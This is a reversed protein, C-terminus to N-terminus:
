KKKAFGLTVTVEGSEPHPFKVNKFADEICKHTEYDLGVLYDELMAKIQGSSDIILRVRLVGDPLDPTNAICAAVAANKARLPKTVKDPSLRGNVVVAMRSAHANPDHATSAYVAAAAADDVRWQCLHDLSGDDRLALGETSARHVLADCPDVPDAPPDVTAVSATPAASASPPPATSTASASARATPAVTAPTAPTAADDRPGGCGFAVFALTGCALKAAVGRLVRIM